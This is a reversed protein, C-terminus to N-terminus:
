RCGHVRDAIREVSSVTKTSLVSTRILQCLARPSSCQGIISIASYQVNGTNSAACHPARIAGRIEGNCMRRSAKPSNASVPM